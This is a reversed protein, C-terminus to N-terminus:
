VKKEALRHEEKKKARRSPELISVKIESTLAYPAHYQM